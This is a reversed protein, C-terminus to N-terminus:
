AVIIHLVPLYAVHHSLTQAAPVQPAAHAFALHYYATEHCRTGNDFILGDRKRVCYTNSELHRTFFRAAVRESYAHEASLRAMNQSTMSGGSKRERPANRERRGNKKSKSKYRRVEEQETV